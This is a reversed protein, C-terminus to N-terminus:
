QHIDGRIEGGGFAATHINVYMKNGLLDTVQAPTLTTTGQIPSTNFSAFSISVSGTSGPGSPSTHIHASTPTLGRYTVTYTLQNTTANYTGSFEGTAASTVPTPVQQAGNIVAVLATTTAVPTADEKKSCAFLLSCSAALLLSHSKKMFHTVAQSSLYLQVFMASSIINKILWQM